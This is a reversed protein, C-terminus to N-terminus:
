KAIIKVYKAYFKLKQQKTAFQEKKHEVIM